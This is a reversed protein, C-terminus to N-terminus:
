NAEVKPVFKQIMFELTRTLKKFDESDPSLFIEDQEGIIQTSVSNQLM